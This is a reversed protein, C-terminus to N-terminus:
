KPLATGILATLLPALVFVGNQFTQQWSSDAGLLAALDQRRRLPTSIDLDDPSPIPAHKDLLRECRSNIATAASIHYLGLVAAFILGILVAYDSPYAAGTYLTLILQRRAATVVVYLTLAVGFTGLFRNLYRRLRVAMLIQRQPEEWQHDDRALARLVLFGALGPVAIVAGGIGLGIIQGSFPHVPRGNVSGAPITATVLFVAFITLFVALLGRVAGLLAARERFIALLGRLSTQPRSIKLLQWLWRTMVVFAALSYGCLVGILGAWLELAARSARTFQAADPASLILFHGLLAGLVM